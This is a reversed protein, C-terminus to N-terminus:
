ILIRLLLFQHSQPPMSQVWLPPTHWWLRPSLSQWMWFSQPVCLSSWFLPPHAELRGWARLQVSILISRYATLSWQFKPAPFLSWLRVLRTSHTCALEPARQPLCVLLLWRPICARWRLLDSNRDDKSLDQWSRSLGLHIRSFRPTGWVPRLEYQYLSLAPFIDFEFGKTHKLVPNYCVWRLSCHAQLFTEQQNQQVHFDIM